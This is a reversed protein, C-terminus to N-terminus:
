DCLPLDRVMSHASPPQVPSFLSQRQAQSPSEVGAPQSTVVEPIAQREQQLELQAM